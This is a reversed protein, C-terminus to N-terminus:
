EFSSVIETIDVIANPYGFKKAISKMEEQKFENNMIEDINEYLVEENLENEQIIKTGGAEFLALANHYQHNNTVNPSPILISPIGLATIESITTAGSRSVILDISGLIEPMNELYKYIKVNEQFDEESLKEITENYYKEGTVFVIKYDAFVYKKIMELTIDNIKKAGGSGGIILVNKDESSIINNNIKKNKYKITQSGRPNGVLKTKEVPFYKNAEEFCTLIVDVSKSIRRNAMGPFSNQEHIMTNFGLKVAAALVPASVYGGTGFIVTPKERKLIKKASSKAKLYKLITILNSFSIKRKLGQVDLSYYKIDLDKTLQKEIGKESGVYICEINEDSNKWEEILALAPYVHGGTGGGTFIVKM